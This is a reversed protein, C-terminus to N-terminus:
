MDSYICLPMNAYYFIVQPCSVCQVLIAHTSGSPKLPLRFRVSTDCSLLEHAYLVNNMDSKPLNPENLSKKDFKLILWPTIQKNIQVWAFWISIMDYNQYNYVLFSLSLKVKVCNFLMMSQAGVIKLYM